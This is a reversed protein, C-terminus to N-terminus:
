IAHRAPGWQHIEQARPSFIELHGPLLFDIEFFNLCREVSKARLTPVRNRRVLEAADIKLLGDTGLATRREDGFLM